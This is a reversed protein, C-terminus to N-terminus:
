ADDDEPTKRTNLEQLYKRETPVSRNRGDYLSTTGLLYTTQRTDEKHIRIRGGTVFAEPEARMTGNEDQRHRREDIEYKNSVGGTSASM